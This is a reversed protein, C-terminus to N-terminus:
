FRLAAKLRVENDAEGADSAQRSGELGVVVDPHATPRNSRQPSIEGSLDRRVTVGVSGGAEERCQPGSRDSANAIGKDRRSDSM